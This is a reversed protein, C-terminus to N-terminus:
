FGKRKREIRAQVVMDAPGDLSVIVQVRKVQQGRGPKLSGSSSERRLQAPSTSGSYGDSPPELPYKTVWESLHHRQPRPQHLVPPEPEPAAHISFTGSDITPESLEYNRTEKPKPTNKAKRFADKQQTEDDVKIIALRPKSTTQGPSKTLLRPAINQVAQSKAKIPDEKEIALSNMQDLNKSSMTKAAAQKDALVLKWWSWRRRGQLLQAGSLVSAPKIATDVFACDAFTPLTSSSSRLSKSTVNPSDRKGLDSLTSPRIPTPSISTHRHKIENTFSGISLPRLEIPDSHINPPHNSLQLTFAQRIQGPFTPSQSVSEKTRSLEQIISDESPTRSVGQQKQIQYKKPRSREELSASVGKKTSYLATASTKTIPPLFLDSQSSLKLHPALDRRSKAGESSNTLHRRSTSLTSSSRSKADLYRDPAFGSIRDLEEAICGKPPHAREGINIDDGLVQSARSEHVEVDTNRDDKSRLQKKVLTLRADHINQQARQDGGIGLDEHTGQHVIHAKVSTQSRAQGPTQTDGVSCSKRVEIGNVPRSSSDDTLKRRWPQPGDLPHPKTFSSYSKKESLVSPRRHAKSLTQPRPLSYSEYKQLRSNIPCATMPSHSWSSVWTKNCGGQIAHVRGAVFGEKVIPGRAECYLSHSQITLPELLSPSKSQQVKM